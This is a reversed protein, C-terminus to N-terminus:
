SWTGEGLSALYWDQWHSHGIAHASAPSINISSASEPTAVSVLEKREAQETGTGWVNNFIQTYVQGSISSYIHKYKSIM